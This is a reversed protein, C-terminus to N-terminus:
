TDHRNEGNGYEMSVIEEPIYGDAARKAAVLYLIGYVFGVISIVLIVIEIVLVLGWSEAVMVVPLLLMLPIDLVMLYLYRKWCHRMREGYTQVSSTEAFAEAIRYMVYLRFVVLVIEALSVLFGSKGMVCFILDCTSLILAAILIGHMKELRPCQGGMERIGMYILLYGVCDPLLDVTPLDKFLTQLNVTLVAFFLGWFVKKM